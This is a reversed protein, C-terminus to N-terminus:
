FMALFTTPELPPKPVQFRCRCHTFPPMRVTFRLDGVLVGLVSNAHLFFITEALRFWHQTSGAPITHRGM